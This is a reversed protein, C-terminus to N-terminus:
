QIRHTEHNNTEVNLTYRGDKLQSPLTFNLKLSRGHKIEKSGSMSLITDDKEDTLTLEYGCTTWVGGQNAVVVTEPTGAELSSPLSIELDSQPVTFTSTYEGNLDGTYVGSPVGDPIDFEVHSTYKSQPPVTVTESHSFLLGDITFECDKISPTSFPNDYTIDIYGEDGESYQTQGFTFTTGFSPVLVFGKRDSVPKNWDDTVWNLRAVYTYTKEEPFASLPVSFIHNYSRSKHIGVDYEGEWLIDGPLIEDPIYDYDILQLSLRYVGPVPDGFFRVPFVLDTGGLYPKISFLEGVNIGTFFTRRAGQVLLEYSGVDQGEGWVNVWLKDNYYFVPVTFTHSYYGHAEVTADVLLSSSMSPYTTGEGYVPDDDSHWFHYPFAMAIYVDKAEDGDNWVHVTFEADVLSPYYESASTVSARIDHSYSFGFPTFGLDSVAVMQVGEKVVLGSETEIRYDIRWLGQQISSTIDVSVPLNATRSPELSFSEEGSKVFDGNEDTVNYYMVFSTLETLDIDLTFAGIYSSWRWEEGDYLDYVVMWIGPPSDAGTELQLTVTESTGAAVTQQVDVTHAIHYPDYVTFTVRDADSANNNYVTYEIEVLDGRAFHSWTESAILPNTFNLTMETPESYGPTVSPVPKDSKGWEILNRLILTRTPTYSGYLSGGPRLDIYSTTAIVEGAGYSYHIMAPTLNKRRTLIETAGEPVTLFFGDIAIDLANDQRVCSSDIGSLVPHYTTITSSKSQCSEEEDWGYGTVEGGPLLEFEEGSFQAFMILSGGGEVYTEFAARVSSAGALGYLSGTPLILVPYESPSLGAVAGIDVLQPYEGSYITRYFDIFGKDVSPYGRDLVAVNGMSGEEGNWTFQSELWETSVDFNDDPHDYGPYRPPREPPDDPDDEDEDDDDDYPDRCEAGNATTVCQTSSPCETLSSPVLRWACDRCEKMGIFYTSASTCSLRQEGARCSGYSSSDAACQGLCEGAQKAGLMDALLHGISYACGIPLGPSSSLSTLCSVVDSPDKTYMAKGCSYTNSILEGGACSLATELAENAISTWDIEKQDTCEDWCDALSCSYHNFLGGIPDVCGSGVVSSAGSVGWLLERLEDVGKYGSVVEHRDDVYHIMTPYGSVNYAEALGPYAEADVRYVVLRDRGEAEVVDLVGREVECFPCWATYFLVLVQWGNGLADDVEGALDRAPVIVNVIKSATVNGIEIPVAETSVAAVPENEGGGEVTVMQTLALFDSGILVLILSLCLLKKM